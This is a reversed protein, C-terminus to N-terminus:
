GEILNASQYVQPLCKIANVEEESIRSFIENIDYEVGLLYNFPWINVQSKIDIVCPLDIPPITWYKIEEKYMRVISRNDMGRSQKEPWLTYNVKELAKKSIARGAGYTSNSQLRRCALDESNIYAADCIGFFDYKVFFKQYQDFLEGLILDDSGIEILFDFDKDKIQSLGYNKKEGLPENKYMCWEVGYKECLPIMSEESIVAFPAVHFRKQLRKIGM